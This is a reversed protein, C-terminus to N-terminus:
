ESLSDFMASRTGDHGPKVRADMRGSQQMSQRILDPLSAHRGLACRATPRNGGTERPRDAPRYFRDRALTPPFYTCVGGGDVAATGGTAPGTLSYLVAEM